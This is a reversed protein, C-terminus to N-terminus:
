PRVHDPAWAPLEPRREKFTARLWVRRLLDGILDRTSTDTVLTDQMLGTCLLTGIVAERAANVALVMNARALDHPEEFDRTGLKSIDGAIRVGLTSIKDAAAAGIEAERDLAWQPTTVRPENAPPVRITQLYLSFGHRVLQMYLTDSWKRSVFEINIQRVLEIEGLTMSRNETDKEAALLGSPLDLLEEFTRLLFNRDADDPVIVTVNEPGVISAWREVLADHRHRQWFTPTPKVYPPKKLMGELWVDYSFTARNRVYQQWQSPMIKVLPRLTVVVHVRQGGLERVARRAVDVDADAFHESSVIVRQDAAAVVEAVLSEWREIRPPVNGVLPKRGTFAQVAEMPQPSVGAHLVGNEALQPRAHFLAGQIATTGTKFTGIHLLVAHEPLRLPSAV